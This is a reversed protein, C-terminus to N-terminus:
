LHRFPTRERLDTCLFPIKSSNKENKMALNCGIGKALAVRGEFRELVSSGIWMGNPFSVLPKLNGKSSNSQM